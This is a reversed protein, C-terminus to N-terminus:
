APPPAELICQLFGGLVLLNFMQLVPTGAYGTYDRYNLLYEM